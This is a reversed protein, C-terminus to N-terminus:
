YTLDFAKKYAETKLSLGSGFLISNIYKDQRKLKNEVTIGENEDNFKYRYHDVFETVSNYAGWVTGRAYEHGAGENYLKKLFEKIKLKNKTHKNEEEIAVDTIGLVANYYEDLEKDTIIRNAFDKYIMEMEAFYNNAYAIDIQSKQIKLDAINNHKISINIYSKKLATILANMCLLRVPTLIIRMSFLGDHGNLVLLYKDIIDEGIIKFSDPLKLSVWIRRGGKIIGISTYRANLIKALTNTYDFFNRNQIVKYKGKVVGLIANNDSRCLAYAPAEKYHSVSSLTDSFKYFLREKKVEWLLNNKELFDDDLYNTDIRIGGGGWLNRNSTDLLSFNSNMNNIIRDIFTAGNVEMGMEGNTESWELLEEGKMDLEVEEENGYEYGLEEDLLYGDDLHKKEM